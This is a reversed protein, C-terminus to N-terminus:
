SRILIYDEGTSRRSCFWKNLSRPHPIWVWDEGGIGFSKLAEQLTTTNRIGAETGDELNRLTWTHM